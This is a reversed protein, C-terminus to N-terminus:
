CWRTQMHSLNAHPFVWFSHSVMLIWVTSKIPYFGNEQLGEFVYQSLHSYELKQEKSGPPTRLFPKEILIRWNCQDFPLIRRVLRVWQLMGKFYFQFSYIERERGNGTIFITCDSCFANLLLPCLFAWIRSKCTCQRWLGLLECGIILLYHAPLLCGKLTIPAIHFRLQLVQNGCNSRVSCYKQSLKVEKPKKGWLSFKCWLLWWTCNQYSKINPQAWHLKYM